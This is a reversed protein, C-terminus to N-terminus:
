GRGLPLDAFGQERLALRREAYAADEVWLRRARAEVLPRIFWGLRRVAWQFGPRESTAITAEVVASRQDDLPTAHTEVVSGTGEGAVITMTICRPDPTHFRADVEVALPGLVRYAVRVVIDDDSQALVHLTGFSHP